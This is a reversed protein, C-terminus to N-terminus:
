YIIIFSLHTLRNSILFIHFYAICVDSLTRLLRMPLVTLWITYVIQMIYFSILTKEDTYSWTSNKQVGSTIVLFTLFACVLGIMYTMEKTEEYELGHNSARWHKWLSYFWYGELVVFSAIGSIYFATLLIQFVSYEPYILGCSTMIAVLAVFIVPILFYKYSIKWKTSIVGESISYLIVSTPVLSKMSFCCTYLYPMYYHDHYSIYIIGAVMLVFHSIIRHFISRWNSAFFLKDLFVDVQVHLTTGICLSELIKLTMSARLTDGLVGTSSFDQIRKHSYFFPAIIICLTILCIATHM